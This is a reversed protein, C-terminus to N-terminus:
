SIEKRVTSKAPGKKTDPAPAPSGTEQLSVPWSDYAALYDAESRQLIRQLEELLQEDARDSDAATKVPPEVSSARHFVASNKTLLVAALLIGAALAVWQWRMGFRRTQRSAVPGAEQHLRSKLGALFDASPEIQPHCSLARWTRELQDELGACERCARMHGSLARETRPSIGQSERRAILRRARHCRM